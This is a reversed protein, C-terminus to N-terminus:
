TELVLLNITSLYLPVPRQAGGNGTWDMILENTQPTWAYISGAVNSVVVDVLGDLNIDAIATPGDVNADATGTFNRVLQVQGSAVDVAYVQNGAVIELGKCLTCESTPLVDYAYSFGGGSVGINGYATGVTMANIANTICPSTGCAFNVSFIQNGIYIEPTSDEDFDAIATGNTYAAGSSLVTANITASIFSQWSTGNYRLVILKNTSSVYTIELYGAGDM